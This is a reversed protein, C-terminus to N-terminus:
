EGAGPASRLWVSSNIPRVADDATAVLASRLTALDVENRLREAFGDVTRQADYRARNFRRDVSAQVRRRLPQFLAAVILTSGAVAVTNGGTVQALVGQLGVVIGAFAAVILGTTLTWSITRSIIRDIDYLRYRLIAAGIAVPLVALAGFGVYIGMSLVTDPALFAVPFAIAVVSAVAMLWKIQNRETVSGRRFRIAVAAVAGLFAPGTTLTAITAAGSLYPALFAIGFPNEVPMSESIPGPTFAPEVIALLTGIALSLVLWRWRPSPLRGDPFVAPVGAGVIVIAPVFVVDSLWALLATGPWPGGRATISAQAYAGGFVGLALFTGAALLMWGIPNSPVRGALFAGVGGFSMAMALFIVAASVDFADAPYLPQAVAVLAVDVIAVIALAWMSRPWSRSAIRSM